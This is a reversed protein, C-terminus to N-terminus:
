EKEKLENYTFEEACDDTLGHYGSFACLKQYATAMNILWGVSDIDTDNRIMDILGSDIFNAVAYAEDKTLNM